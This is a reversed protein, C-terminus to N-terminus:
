VIFLGELDNTPMDKEHVVRDSVTGLEDDAETNHPFEVVTRTGPYLAVVGSTGFRPINEVPIGSPLPLKSMSSTHHKEHGQRSLLLSSLFFRVFALNCRSLPSSTLRLM